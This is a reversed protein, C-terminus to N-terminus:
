WTGLPDSEAYKEWSKVSSGKRGEQFTYTIGPLAAAMMHGHPWSGCSLSPLAPHCVFSARTIGHAPQQVLGAFGYSKEM